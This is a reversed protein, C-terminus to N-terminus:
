PLTLQYGSCSVSWTGAISQFGVREGEAYVQRGRWAYNFGVIEHGQRLVLVHGGTPGYVVMEDTGAGTEDVIDIDRVVYILGAPVIPGVTGAAVDLGGTAFIRLSYVNRSM